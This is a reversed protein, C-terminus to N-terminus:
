APSFRARENGSPECFDSLRGKKLTGDALKLAIQPPWGAQAETVSDVVGIARSLKHVMIEGLFGEGTAPIKTKGMHDTHRFFGTSEIKLPLIRL